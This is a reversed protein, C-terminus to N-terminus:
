SAVLRLRDLRRYASAARRYATLEDWQNLAYRVAAKLSSKPLVRRDDNKELLWARLDQMIGISEQQRLELRDAVSFDGARDEIDYLGRYFSLARSCAVADNSKAEVFKRRAHANCCCALIRGGSGM